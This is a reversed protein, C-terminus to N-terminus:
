FRELNTDSAASVSLPTARARIPIPKNINALSRKDLSDTLLENRLCQSSQNREHLMRKGSRKPNIIIRELYFSNM